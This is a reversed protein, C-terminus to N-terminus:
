KNEYVREADIGTCLYGGYDYLKNDTKVWGYKDDKYEGVLYLRDGRKQISEHKWLITKNDFSLSVVNGKSINMFYHITLYNKKVVGMFSDIEIMQRNADVSYSMYDEINKVAYIVTAHNAISGREKFEDRIRSPSSGTDGYYYMYYMIFHRAEVLEKKRSKSFVGSEEVGFYECIRNIIYQSKIYNFNERKKKWSM